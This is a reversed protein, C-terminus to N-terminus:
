SQSNFFEIVPKMTIRIDCTKKGDERIIDRVSKIDRNEYLRDVFAILDVIKVKTEDAPIRMVYKENGEESFADVYSSSLVPLGKAAYEKTKLTSENKLGQRHIALSNIGVANEKYLQNLDSGFRAGYFIVHKSLNYKKVLEEYKSCEDGRGILRLIINRSGDNAYYENLGEILREYGHVRYMASVAILNISSKVDIAETDYDIKEFDIGNITNITPINFIEKDKSYTVIRDVYKYIMKRFIRDLTSIIKGKTTEFGEMDYPYTPIEVVIKVKASKFAKLMRLFLYDSQPYRIYSYSYNGNKIITTAYRLVALKSTGNILKKKEGTKVNYLFVNGDFYSLIDVDFVDLLADAQCLIKKPVGDLNDFDIPVPSIYLLKSM